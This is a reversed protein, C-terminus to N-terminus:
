TSVSLVQIMDMKAGTRVVEDQYGYWNQFSMSDLKFVEETEQGSVLFRVISNTGAEHGVNNNETPALPQYMRHQAWPRVPLEGSGATLLYEQGEIELIM